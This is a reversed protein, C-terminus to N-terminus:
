VIIIHYQFTLLYNYFEYMFGTPLVSSYLLCLFLTKLVDTYREALNWETGMINYSSDMEEQTSKSGAFLRKMNTTINLFRIVNTQLIDAVLISAIKSVGRVRLFDNSKTLMFTIVGTNMFRVSQFVMLIDFPTM